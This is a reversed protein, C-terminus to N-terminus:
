QKPEELSYFFHDPFDKKIEPFSMRVNNLANFFDEHAKKVRSFSFSNKSIKKADIVEIFKIYLKYNYVALKLFKRKIDPKVQSNLLKYSNNNEKLDTSLNNFANNLETGKDYFYNRCSSDDTIQNLGSIQGWISTPSLTDDIKELFSMLAIYEKILSFERDLFWKLTAWLVLVVLIIAVIIPPIPNQPNVLDFLIVMVTFIPILTTPFRLSLIFDRMASM